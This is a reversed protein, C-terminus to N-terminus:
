INVDVFLLKEVLSGIRRLSVVSWYKVDLDQFKVWVLVSRLKSKELKIDFLWM